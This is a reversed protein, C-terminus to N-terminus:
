RTGNAHIYTGLGSAKDDQWEGEYYDGDAHFLKGYGSAKDDKWYGVYRVVNLVSGSLAFPSVEFWRAM